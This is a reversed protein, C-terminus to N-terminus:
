AVASLRKLMVCLELMLLSALRNPRIRFGSWILLLKSKLQLGHCAPGSSRNSTVWLPQTCRAFPSFLLTSIQSDNGTHLLISFRRVSSEIPSVNRQMVCTSHVYLLRVRQLNKYNFWRSWGIPCYTNLRQFSIAFIPHKSRWESM